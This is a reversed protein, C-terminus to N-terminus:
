PKTKLLEGTLEKKLYSFSSMNLVQDTLGLEVEVFVDFKGKSACPIKSNKCTFLIQLDNNNLIFEGGTEYKKYPTQYIVEDSFIKKKEIQIHSVKIFDKLKAASKIEFSIDGNKYSLSQLSVTKFTEAIAKTMIPKIVIQSNEGSQKLNYQILNESYSNKLKMSLRNNEAKVELDLIKEMLMLDESLILEVNHKHTKVFEKRVFVYEERRCSYRETSYCVDYSSPSCTGDTCNWGNSDRTCRDNWVERECTSDVTQYEYIDKYEDSELHIASDRRDQSLSVVETDNGTSAFSSLSLALSLVSIFKNMLAGRSLASKLLPKCISDLSLTAGTHNRYHNKLYSFAQFM